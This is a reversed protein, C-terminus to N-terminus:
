FSIVHALEGDGHDDAAQAFVGDILLQGVTQNFQCGDM